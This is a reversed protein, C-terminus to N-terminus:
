LLHHEKVGHFYEQGMLSRDAAWVQRQRTTLPQHLHLCLVVVVSQQAALLVLAATIGAHIIIKRVNIKRTNTVFKWMVDTTSTFSLFDNQVDSGSCLVHVRQMQFM